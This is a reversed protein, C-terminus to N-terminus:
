NCSNDKAMKIINSVEEIEEEINNLYTNLEDIRVEIHKQEVKLEEIRTKNFSNVTRPTFAEFNSDNNQKLLKIFEINEKYTLSLESLKNEIDIKEKLFGDRIKELYTVVM